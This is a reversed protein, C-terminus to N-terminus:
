IVRGHVPVQGLGYPCQIWSSYLGQLIPINNLRLLYISSIFKRVIITIERNTKWVELGIGSSLMELVSQLQSIGTAM